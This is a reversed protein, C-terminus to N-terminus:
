GRPASTLYHITSPKNMNEFAGEGAMKSNPCPLVWGMISGNGGSSDDERNRYELIRRM